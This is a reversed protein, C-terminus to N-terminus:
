FHSYHGLGTPPLLHLLAMVCTLTAANMPSPSTSDWRTNKVRSEACPPCSAARRTCFWVSTGQFFSAFWVSVSRGSGPASRERKKKETKIWKFKVKLSELQVWREWGRSPQVPLAAWTSVEPPIQHLGSPLHHPVCLHLLLPSSFYLHSNQMHAVTFFTLQIM